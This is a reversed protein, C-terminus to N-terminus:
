RLKSAEINGQCYDNHTKSKDRHKRDCVSCFYKLLRTLVRANMLVLKLPSELELLVMFHCNTTFILNTEPVLTVLAQTVCSM